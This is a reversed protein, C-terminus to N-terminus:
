VLLQEDNRRKGEPRNLGKRVWEEGRLHAILALFFSAM